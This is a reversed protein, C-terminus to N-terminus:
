LEAADRCKRRINALSSELLVSNRAYARGVLFENTLKIFLECGLLEFILFDRFERSARFRKCERGEKQIM